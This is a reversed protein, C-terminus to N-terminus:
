SDDKGQMKGLLECALIYTDSNDAVMIIERVLPIMDKFLYAETVKIAHKKKELLQVPNSWFTTGCTVTLSYREQFMDGGAYEMGAIPEHKNFQYTIDAPKQRVARREGTNNLNYDTSLM